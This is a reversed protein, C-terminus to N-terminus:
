KIFSVAYEATPWQRQSVTKTYAFESFYFILGYLISVPVHKLHHDNFNFRSFEYLAHLFKKGLFKCYFISSGNPTGDVRSHAM